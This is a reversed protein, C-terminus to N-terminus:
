PAAVIPAPTVITAINGTGKIASKLTYYNTAYVIPDDVTAMITRLYNLFKSTEVSLSNSTYIVDKNRMEFSTALFYGAPDRFNVNYVVPIIQGDFGSCDIGLRKAVERTEGRYLFVSAPDALSDNLGGAKGVGEALSIRWADFKFQGQAGSAGFVVFTQPESYVFITDGAHAYINNSPEYVLAGFPVTARHGDRELMVWTDFGQARPGGARTIADLLHEGAASAPLREPHNVEGLVSILSTRQDVLAVVVQPELARNKLSNVISQQVEVQTRGQAHIAGAYPVSINGNNDVAQNPLTIFNGPRVGAEAPIFLGHTPWPM